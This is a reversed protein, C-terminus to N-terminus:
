EICYNRLRDLDGMAAVRGSMTASSVYQPIQLPSTHALPYLSLSPTPLSYFTKLRAVLRATLAYHPADDSRGSHSFRPSPAFASLRKHPPIFTSQLKAM